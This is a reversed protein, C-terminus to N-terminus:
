TASAGSASNKEFHSALDPHHRRFTDKRRILLDAVEPLNRKLLCGAGNSLEYRAALLHYEALSALKLREDDTGSERIWDRTKPYGALMMGLWQVDGIEKMRALINLYREASGANANGTYGSPREGSLHPASTMPQRVM